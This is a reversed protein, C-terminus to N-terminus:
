ETKWTERCIRQHTNEPRTQPTERGNQPVRQLGPLQGIEM